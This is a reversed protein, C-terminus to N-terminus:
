YWCGKCLAPQVANLHKVGLADLMETVSLLSTMSHSLRPSLTLPPYSAPLRASCGRASTGSQTWSGSLWFSRSAKRSAAACRGICRQADGRTVSRACTMTPTWRLWSGACFVGDVRTSVCGNSRHASAAADLCIFKCQMSVELSLQIVAGILPWLLMHRQRLSQLHRGELAHWVLLLFMCPAHSCHCWDLFPNLPEPYPCRFYIRELKPLPLPSPLGFLGRTIPPVAEEPDLGPAVRELAGRALPGLISDALLESTDLAVDFADDGAGCLPIGSATNRQTSSIQHFNGPMHVWASQKWADSATNDANGALNCAAAGRRQLTRTVAPPMALIVAFALLPISCKREGGVAAFPIIIANLKAAMRVFDPQEKWQLQYEQGKLKNM